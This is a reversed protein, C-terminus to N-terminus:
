KKIIDLVNKEYNMLIYDGFNDYADIISSQADLIIKTFASDTTTNGETLNSRYSKLWYYNEINMENIISDMKIFNINKFKQTLINVVEYFDELNEVLSIPKLKM